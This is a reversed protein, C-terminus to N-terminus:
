GDQDDGKPHNEKWLGWLSLIVLLLACVTGVTAM